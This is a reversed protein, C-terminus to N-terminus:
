GSPAALDITKPLSLQSVAPFFSTHFTNGTVPKLDLTVATSLTAVAQIPDGNIAPSIKDQFQAMTLLQEELGHVVVCTNVANDITINTLDLGDDDIVFDDFTQYALEDAILMQQSGALVQYGPNVYTDEVYTPEGTAATSPDGNGISCGIVFEGFMGGDGATLKYSKVKGTASGGPLRRDLYTVNHRLTIGLATTWPVGFTIDVARARSRVKARALLLLYEFSLAGRGSQFYSRQAVSGIPVEGGADAATAVYTSTLAIDENDSDASDSLMRQVNATVVAEVTETRQREARWDLMMRIKYNNLPFKIQVAIWQNSLLLTPDLLGVDVGASLPEQMTMNVNYDIPQLWGNPMDAEVCYCLPKGDGENDTSLTWGGGINTGPSPWDARLGEGCAVQILGGGTVRTYGWRPYNLRKTAFTSKYPSGAAAFARVLTETVDLSGDGQQSWSVTGSVNVATLPPAGYSLSFADYFAEDEGITVIGDEGQLIDSATLELTTRDVHWLSSYTELVTDPNEAATIWVPDYYPLVAMASSLAAKQENYDDPRALFELTVVESMSLKPVGILRGNFLPVIVPTGSGDPSWAADWSLWCWLNRGLALLGVHPNRIEITLSALGGEEHTIELSVIEEDERAHAVPDFAADPARPGTITFIGNIASATAPQDITIETAGSGPAVFTTGVQLGNGSINYRLGATLSALAGSPISTISYSDADPLGTVRIAFTGSSIATVAQPGDPGLVYLSMTGGGAYDALASPVLMTGGAPAATQGISTGSVCYLGPLLGIDDVLTIVGSGASMAAATSGILMARTVVYTASAVTAAAPDLLNVAGAEPSLTSADYIFFTGDLGPGSIAYLEADSLASNGAMNFLAATGATVDGVITATEVIGGHTNGNVVLTQQEQIVGGAWAFYFPGPM